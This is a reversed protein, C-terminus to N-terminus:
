HFTKRTLLYDRWVSKQRSAEQYRILHGCLVDPATQLLNLERELRWLEVDGSEQLVHYTLQQPDHITLPFYVFTQGHNIEGSYPLQNQLLRLLTTKGRGNRGLLGLKWTTDITLNTRDFLLQEQSDFGFTLNKINITTM